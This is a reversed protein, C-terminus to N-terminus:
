QSKKENERKFEGELAQHNGQNRGVDERYYEGEFTASSQQAQWRGSKIMRGLILKRFPPILLTIGLLDTIFGPIMLFVGGLAIMFGELIELAPLEGHTMRERAKLMTRFGQRRIVAMGAVMGLIVLALTNLAGIYGGVKILVVLELAPLLLFIWAPFRM